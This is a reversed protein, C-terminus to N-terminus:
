TFSKNDASAFVERRHWTLFQEAPREDDSAPLLAERLHFCGLWDQVGEGSVPAAVTIRRKEDLTFAGADFLGHHLACLALGNRVEDPGEACHWMIHAGELAAPAGAVQVAFGCIACRHRYAALVEKSFRSDRARRRFYEYVSDFTFGPAIGVAQLIDHHRKPPFHADVLTFAIELALASDSKLASFVDHPFGGHADAARLSTVHADGSRSETIPVPGRVEVEWLGDQQLRWFPYDPRPTMGPRGFRLLLRKLVPEVERWPAMRDGDKLCRGIAYLVLLPKNPARVGHKRWIHLEGFRARLENANM